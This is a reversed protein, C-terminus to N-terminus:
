LIIEGDDCVFRSISSGRRWERHVSDTLKLKEVQERTGRFRLEKLNRCDYFVEQSENLNITVPLEVTSLNLCWQFVHDQIFKCSDPIVVSELKYCQKFAENQISRLTNSLRINKLEICGYFTKAAIMDIISDQMDVFELLECSQFACEDIKTVNSPIDIKEISSGMFGQFAIFSIIDPIVYNKINNKWLYQRPIYELIAAPDIGAALMVETFAGKESASLSSYIEKWSEKTNENILDLNQHILKKLKDDM